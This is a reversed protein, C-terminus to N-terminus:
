KRRGFDAPMRPHVQPAYSRSQYAAEPAVSSPCPKQWTLTTITVLGLPKCLPQTASARAPLAHGDTRMVAAQEHACICRGMHPTACTNACRRAPGVHLWVARWAAWMTPRASARLLGSQTALCRRRGMGFTGETALLYVPKTRPARGGHRLATRLTGRHSEDPM